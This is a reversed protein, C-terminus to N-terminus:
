QKFVWLHLAVEIDEVGAKYTESFTIKSDSSDASDAEWFHSLSGKTNSVNKEHAVSWLQDALDPDTSFGNFESFGAKMMGLRAAAAITTLILSVDEIFASYGLPVFVASGESENSGAAIALFKTTGTIDDQIYITGTADKNAGWRSVYAHFVRVFKTISSQGTLGGTEVAIAQIILAETIGIITVQQAGSGAASDDASTSDVWVVAPTGGDFVANPASIEAFGNSLTGVYKMELHFIPNKEKGHGKLFQGFPANLLELDPWTHLRMKCLTGHAM